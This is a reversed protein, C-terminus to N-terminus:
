SLEISASRFGCTPILALEPRERVSPLTAAVFSVDSLRRPLKYPEPLTLKGDADVKSFPKGNVFEWMLAGNFEECEPSRDTM